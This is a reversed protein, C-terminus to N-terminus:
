WPVPLHLLWCSFVCCTESTLLCVGMGLGVGPTGEGVGRCAGQEPVRSRPLGRLSFRERSGAEQSNRFCPTRVKSCLWEPQKQNQHWPREERLTVNCLPESAQTVPGLPPVCRKERCSKRPTCNRPRAAPFVRRASAPGQSALRHETNNPPTSYSNRAANAPKSDLACSGRRNSCKCNPIM